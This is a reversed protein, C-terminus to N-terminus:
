HEIDNQNGADHITIRVDREVKYDSLDPKSQFGYGTLVRDPKALRVYDPGRIMDQDKLYTLEETDLTDGGSSVLIVEELATMEGTEEDLFGKRSTLRSDVRGADDFFRLEIQELRVRSHQPIRYAYDAHLEWLRKGEVTETITFGRIERELGSSESPAQEPDDAAACGGLLLLAVVLTRRM